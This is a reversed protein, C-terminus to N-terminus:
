RRSQSAFRPPTPKVKSRRRSLGVPRAFLTANIAAASKLSEIM